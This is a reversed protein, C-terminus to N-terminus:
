TQTLIQSRAFTFMTYFIFDGKMMEVMKKGRFVLITLADKNIILLILYIFEINIFKRLYFIEKFFFYIKLLM